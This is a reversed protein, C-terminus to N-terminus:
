DPAPMSSRLSVESEGWPVVVERRESRCNKPCAGPHCGRAEPPCNGAILLAEHTGPLVDRFRVEWASVPSAARGDITAALEPRKRFLKGGAAELSPVQVTVTARPVGVLVTVEAPDSGEEVEVGVTGHGCTPECAEGPCQAPDCPGVWWTLQHGGPALSLEFPGARGDDEAAAEDAGGEGPVDDESAAAKWQEGVSLHVPLGAAGDVWVVVPRPPAEVPAEPVDPVAQQPSSRALWAAMGIVGITAVLVGGVAAVRAATGGLVPAPAAEHRKTSAVTSGRPQDPAELVELVERATQPRDDPDRRTLAEILARVAPPAADGVDLPPASQKSLAVQLLQKRLPGEGSLPFAYAGTLLEHYVVGLAYLDWQVPDLTSPDMWEPPAYGVTGFSMGERTLRSADTELALGFDVLKLRGEPTILLNGPKVDRHRVGQEHLHTLASALQRMWPAVREYPQPGEHIIEHVSRGEVFEMELFPPNADMRINRLSVINPHDLRYLIEAERVFRRRAEDNSATHEDLVKIAAEIREADVNHCRYVSGMGGKGLRDAVVWVDIRDGNKLVRRGRAVV